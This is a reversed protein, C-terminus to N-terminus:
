PLKVMLCDYEIIRLTKERTVPFLGVIGFGAKEFCTISETLHPMGQYIPIASIESQLAVISRLADGVGAFVNLDYGQTDMKLFIRSRSYDKVENELFRDLRQVTVSERREISAIKGFRAAYDNTELFSSFETASTVNIAREGEKDGLALPYVDWRPDDASYQSVQQFMETVPEFSIIRGEYGICDRLHRAFQGKNAGVDLVLDIWYQELVRKLETDALFRYIQKAHYATNEDRALFLRDKGYRFMETKFTSEIIKQLTKKFM